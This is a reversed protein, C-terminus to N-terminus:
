LAGDLAREIGERLTVKPEWYRRMRTPDGVRYRVGTPKDTLCEISPTYGAAKTVMRALDLFSTGVGTCLNVPDTTGSDLINMCANYVDDVHIFDRVQGGDGWVEFPDAGRLARDIFSPFPYDLDQDTGYGSFPRVVSVTAGAKRAADVMVEGTVKSWGYTQDPPSIKGDPRLDWEQLPHGQAVQLGVPYAASSSFYLVPTSTRVAWSLAAHDIGMNQAIGLPDGDISQRGGVVAAAHVLLDFHEASTPFWDRADTGTKIDFGVVDWGDATLLRTFNRGIFGADGSVLARM